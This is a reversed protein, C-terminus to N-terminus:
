SVWGVSPVIVECWRPGTNAILGRFEDSMSWVGIVRLYRETGRTVGVGETLM